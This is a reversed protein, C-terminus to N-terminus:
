RGYLEVSTPHVVIRLIRGPGYGIEISLWKPRACFHYNTV